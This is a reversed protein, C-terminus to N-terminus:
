KKKGMRSLQEQMALLQARIEDLEDGSDEKEEDAKGADPTPWGPAMGGTMAKMFAEQQTKMAEFGPMSSM